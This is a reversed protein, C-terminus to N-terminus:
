AKLIRAVAAGSLSSACSDSVVFGADVNGVGVIAGTNDVRLVVWQDAQVLAWNPNETGDPKKKAPKQGLPGDVLKNMGVDFKQWQSSGPTFGQAVKMLLDSGQVYYSDIKGVNDGSVKQLAWLRYRLYQDDAATVPPTTTTAGKIECQSSTAAFVSGSYLTLVAPASFAGRMLRRRASGVSNRADINEDM